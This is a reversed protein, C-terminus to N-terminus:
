KILERWNKKYNSYAEDFEKKPTEDIKLEKLMRRLALLVTKEMEISTLKELEIIYGYGKTYDIDVTIDEWKYEIRKRIWKIDEKYGLSTFLNLLDDFKEKETIIEIEERSDDHLKGKKMWIKSHFDNKQIRLDEKCDFYITEQNDKKILSANKNFYTILTRYQTPSIFARIEVELNDKKKAEEQICKM